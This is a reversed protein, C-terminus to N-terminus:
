TIGCRAIMMELLCHHSVHHPIPPQNPTKSGPVQDRCAVGLTGALHKVSCTQKCSVLNISSNPIQSDGGFVRIREPHLHSNIDRWQRADQKGNEEGYGDGVLCSAIDKMGEGGLDEREQGLVGDEVGPCIDGSDKRLM